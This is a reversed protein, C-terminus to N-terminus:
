SPRRRIARAEMGHKKAVSVSVVATRDNKKPTRVKEITGECIRKGSRDLADVKEGVEPYPLFEYPMTVLAEGDLYTMDVVFIALGPCPAVCTGCGNCKDEDLVPVSTLEDVRIAQRPCAAQCPNCPIEQNCEVVAVPGKRLREESPVGPLDRLEAKSLVGCTVVSRKM